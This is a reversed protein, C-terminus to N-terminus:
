RGVRAARTRMWDLLAGETQALAALEASEPLARSWADPAEIMLTQPARGAGRLEFRVLDADAVLVLEDEGRAGRARELVGSDHRGAAAFFADLEALEEASAAWRYQGAQSTYPPFRMEVTGDAWVRLSMRNDHHAVLVHIRQYVYVPEEVPEQAAILPSLLLGILAILAILATRFPSM